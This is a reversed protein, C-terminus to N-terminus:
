TCDFRGIVRNFPDFNKAYCLASNSPKSISPGFFKRTIYLRTKSLNSQMSIQINYFKLKFIPVSFILNLIPMSLKQSALEIRPFKEAFFVYFKIQQFNGVILVDFNQKVFCFDFECLFFAVFDLKWSFNQYVRLDLLNKASV